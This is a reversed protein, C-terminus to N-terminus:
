QKWYPNILDEFIALAAEAGQGAATVIQKYGGEVDGASYIGPINTRHGSDHKIYGDKTIEVDIKRALEVSPEYGVAIFVGDVKKRHKKRTKLDVLSVRTVGKNGSIEEIETNYLVPINEQHLKEVLHEQARLADRRHVLTVDVGINKLNLAETVASDGGGVIIVKRGTFLPGDCTSCYSVGRGSFRQEGIVGLHRHKAGTALLVARTQFRRRGTTVVIPDGTQIEMVEEGQFIRTYELAHSVMLEVLVKGGAQAIGPYNEVMPTTAIQGGLADKEVVASKLGSRAAYIGATLGAPGGGVIVLDTEILPADDDPIFINQQELSLVSSMFLEEPQAGQAVLIENAFTQPVSQASYEEALRPNAQIDIIELSIMEPKMIAAKLGNVVQQPCYPCSPSVFVKIHRPSDIKEIIKAAQEGMNVQGYGLMMLAEVFTKTEEGVPAGLWRIRYKGPNFLLTPSVRADWKRAMEHDLNYELLSIKSTMQRVFRIVERAASNFPGNKEPSTFLILSIDSSIKEFAERLRKEAEKHAKEDDEDPEVYEDPVGPSDMETIEGRVKSNERPDWGHDDM